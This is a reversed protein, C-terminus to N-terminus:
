GDHKPLEHESRARQFFSLGTVAQRVVAVLSRRYFVQHPRIHLAALHDRRLRQIQPAIAAVDLGAGPPLSKRAEDARLRQEIRSCLYDRERALRRAEDARFRKEISFHLYTFLVAVVILPFIISDFM